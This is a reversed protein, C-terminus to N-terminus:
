ADSTESIMPIQVFTLRTGGILIVDNPALQQQDVPHNNIQTGGDSDMDTLIFAGERFRISLHLESVAEDDIIHDNLRGDRGIRTVGNRLPLITGAYPGSVIALFGPTTVSEASGTADPSGSTGDPPGPDARDTNEATL